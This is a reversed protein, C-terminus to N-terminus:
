LAVQITMYDNIAATPVQAVFGIPDDNPARPDGSLTFEDENTWFGRLSFVLRDSATYVILVLPGGQRSTWTHREYTPTSMLWGGTCLVGFRYTPQNRTMGTFIDPVEDSGWLLFGAFLGDSREVLIEDASSERFQVGIGGPWGNVALEEDVNVTTREGKVFVVCDRTRNIEPM